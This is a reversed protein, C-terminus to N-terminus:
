PPPGQPPAAATKPDGSVLLDEDFKFRLRLFVGRATNDTGTLDADKFGFINYGISLWLNGTVLYGAEGGLGMQRTRFGNSVLASALLGIDWRSTLDYTARASALQATAHSMLGNSEDLAWKAALRGSLELPKTPQYNASVSVVDVHRNILLLPQTNDRVDTHEIRGLANWVDTDTDRYAFGAQVRDQTRTGAASGKNRAEAFAERALFTWDRSLKAAFGLTSLLSDSTTADRLELRATGKWLPNATYEVGVAGATAEETGLGSLTHVREFSTQLRTGTAVTWQNRLGIAAETDGGSFADRERYESFLHADKLYDTDIGFVTANQRQSSNLAYPGSLSSLFEHRFYLRGRDAFQYDGGLAGIKKAADHIDEEYEGYANAKPHDPIPATVKVRVSTFDLPSAGVSTPQAPTVTENVHRVGVEVHVNHDLRRDISAFEGQRTGQSTTDSSRLAEGKLVTADDIKYKVRAGAEARGQTLSSGPNNFAADAKSDYVIAQLDGSEHKVEVREASGKGTSLKDTQAVEAVVYTKAALRLTANADKLKSPDSPNRDEVYAGGVELAKAVKIQADVGGVWFKNGGQDVEYTIRLSIPNFNPDLSPLPGRLLLRGTLPEIEYDAFRSEIVSNLVIAPQNRDRTLIEVKESNEVFNLTSLTFPGSTGNAPIEDIVQRTSDQSAFANVNMRGTELHEKVGNLSRSYNGLKRAENASQTLYDGYLLYSKNKDVRVYLKGSSQADFGRVSSDGYVPYFQDPQIDRFLRQQTDKDSDFGATLLYEGKVKGKLFLAARGAVDDAGGGGFSRSWNRLQREFGDQANAPVLARSDLKRLNLVGEVVGAAIMPRLDPLFDATTESQLTGSSVRIHSAGPDQPATLGFEGSGGEIFVQVGPEKPDLDVADWRGLSAELTLPTRVTVPVGHADTLRVLIRAASHGDAPVSEKVSVELKGLQDPAIVTLAQRAREQGSPDLERVDLLNKGPKLDVGIYEWALLAKDALTSKKGVRHASVEQGNVSLAFTDGLTGKIRVNMQAIPLTDQDKLGIFALQNDLAPLLREMPITPASSVPRVPLGSLQSAVGEAHSALGEFSSSLGQFASSQRESRTAPIPGAIGSAPLAKVDGLPHITADADLRGTLTRETEAVQVEAKARRTNVEATVAETCSGEAFDAKHLEGAKLDVFVSGADGANRNSLNILESGPPLTTTDLKLVHTRPSIGYVSYKGESDTVLNTGDELYLRVGPIGLEGPDQVRNRNCDLFVKGLIFGQDSFVGGQLDVKAAAVNSVSAGYAAQARNIGDGQLAGPGIRVRYTLSATGGAAVAGLGFVLTHAHAGSPDFIALGNLRASGPQYAFGVPLRDSVTLGAGLAVTSANKFQLRYDVFDAIEATTRSATKELLLGTIPRADLPIDVMIPGTTPGVTFGGGYSGGATPGTSVIRRGPPLSAVPVASPARYGAPPTVALCYSGPDVLPFVYRGDAGTVVTAPSSQLTGGSLTRVTATVTSCVGGSATVLSVTAGALPANSQSDFVVGTPDVFQITTVAPTACGQLAVSLTDGNRAEIIGDGAVVPPAHTPIGSIVFVGTNPGTERATFTEREGNPGTIVALHTEVLGANQNCSAADARLYLTTGVTVFDDPQTYDPGTYNRINGAVSALAALATNSNVSQPASNVGDLFAAIAVNAIQGSGNTAANADIGVSFTLSNRYGPAISPWAVGIADVTSPDAPIAATYVSDATGARHYLASAGAPVTTIAVFTTNAPIADRLLVPSSSVGDVSITSSGTAVAGGTNALTVGYTLTGGTVPAANSVTKTLRLVAPGPASVKTVTDTVTAVQTPDSKARATKSISFPGGSANIPLKASVVISYSAGPAVVGTDPIGNGNTDALPTTGDPQLLQFTTGAPFNNSGLTIDFSDTVNGINTLTNTFKLTSGAVAAPVTAGILTPNSAGQVVFSATNTPTPGVLTNGDRYRLSATNDIRSANLGSAVTVQFSVTGAFGAPVQNIVATVTGPATIGFDYAITNPAAGQDDPANVADTLILSGTGSWRGSAPVYALGAPLRDALTVSSAAVTSSNSYRLTVTYPGSPSPGTASSFDKTANIVAGGSVTVTDIVPPTAPPNGATSQTADFQSVADVRLTDMAGVSATPPVRAGIVFHFAAGVALQPTATIPTLTDPIGDGNADAYVAVGSLAFGGALATASLTFTDPGNGTNTLTQPFYLTAGPGAVRSGNAVLNFGAVQGVAAQVMNSSASKAAGVADQYNATAQNNILTGAAASFSRPAFGCLLALLGVSALVRGLNQM